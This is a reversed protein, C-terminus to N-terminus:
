LPLILPNLIETSRYKPYWIYSLVLFQQVLIRSTGFSSNEFDYSSYCRSMEANRSEAKRGDRPCSVPCKPTPFGSTGFTVYQQLSAVTVHKPMSSTPIKSTGLILFRHRRSHFRSTTFYSMFSLSAVTGGPIQIESISMEPIRYGPLPISSMPPGSIMFCSSGPFLLGQLLFGPNLM